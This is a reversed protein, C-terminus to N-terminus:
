GPSSRRRKAVIVAAGAAGAVLLAVASVGASLPSVRGDDEAASAAPTAAEPRTGEDDDAPSTTADSADGATDDAAEIVDDDSAAAAAGDESTAAGDAVVAAGDESATVEEPPPPASPDAAVLEVAIAPQDAPADPTGLWRETREGCSQLVRLYRTEGPTGTAVVDLDLEPAVVSPEDLQWTVATVRTGDRELEVTTEDAAAVAVIRLWDPVELVVETTALEDGGGHGDCGHATALTISALSDVPVAGRVFPHAHASTVALAVLVLAFLAARSWTACPIV